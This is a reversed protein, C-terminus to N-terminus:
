VRGMRLVTMATMMPRTTPMTIVSAAM